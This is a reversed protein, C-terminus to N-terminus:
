RNALGRIYGVLEAATRYDRRGGREATPVVIFARAGRAWLDAAMEKAIDLSPRGEELQRYVWAPVNGFDIGGLEPVQVGALLAPRRKPFADEIQRRAADFAAADFNAQFIIFEAGAEIKRRTLAIEADAGLSLDSVAGACFATPAALPEGRFDRGANMRGIDALLATTTYDNVARVSDRDRERIPDGRLIVVNRAGMWHAGLLLSQAAIRNMDRTAHSFIASKSFRDQIHAAVVAANARVAQGPNYSVSLFDAAIDAADALADPDDGRPPSVDCAIVAGARANRVAETVSISGDRIAM